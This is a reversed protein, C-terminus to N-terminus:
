AQTASQSGEMSEKGRREIFRIKLSPSSLAGQGLECVYHILILLWIEQSWVWAREGREAAAEGQRRGGEANKILPLLPPELWLNM